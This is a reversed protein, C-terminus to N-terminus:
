KSCLSYVSIRRWTLIKCWLNRITLCERVLCEIARNHAKPVYNYTYLVFSEVDFGKVADALLARSVKAIWM